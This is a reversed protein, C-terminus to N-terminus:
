SPGHRFDPLDLPSREFVQRAPHQALRNELDHRTVTWAFLSASRLTGSASPSSELIMETQNLRGAHALAYAVLM